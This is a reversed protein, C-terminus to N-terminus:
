SAQLQDLDARQEAVSRLRAHASRAASRTRTPFRVTVTPNQFHLPLRGLDAQQEAVGALLPQSAM